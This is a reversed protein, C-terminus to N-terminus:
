SMTRVQSNRSQTPVTRRDGDDLLLALHRRARSLRMSYAGRSCGLVRAAETSSLSDWFSLALVEQDMPPLQGWVAERDIRRGIEELSEENQSEAPTLAISLASQKLESRNANFLLNRATVFLWPRVDSPLYERRRWATLFTESIIDDVILPHARRQVFRLLDHYNSQYMSTFRQESDSKM